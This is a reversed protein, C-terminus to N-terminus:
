ARWDTRRLPVATSTSRFKMGGPSVQTGGSSLEVLELVELELTGSSLVVDETVSPDVVM